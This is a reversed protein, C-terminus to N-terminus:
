YNVKRLANQDASYDIAQILDLNEKCFTEAQERSDFVASLQYYPHIISSVDVTKSYKSLRLLVSDRYDKDCMLCPNKVNINFWEAM